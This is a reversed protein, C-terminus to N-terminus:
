AVAVLFLGETGGNLVTYTLTDVFQLDYGANASNFLSVMTALSAAVKSPHAYGPLVIAGVRTVTDGFLPNSLTILVLALAKKIINM